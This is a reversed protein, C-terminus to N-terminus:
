IAYKVVGVITDEAHPRSSEVVNGQEDYRCTQLEHESVYGKFERIKYIRKDKLHILLIDKPKVENHLDKRNVKKVLLQSGTHIGRPAMCDGKAVVKIMNRTDIRKGDSNKVICKPERYSSSLDKASVGDTSGAEVFIVKEGKTLNLYGYSIAVIILGIFILVTPTM